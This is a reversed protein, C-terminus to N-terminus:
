GLGVMGQEGAGVLYRGAALALYVGDPTALRRVLTGDRRDLVTVTAAGDEADASEVLLIHAGDTLLEASSGDAVGPATWRSAGTRADLAVVREGASLYVTGELILVTERWGSSAGVDAAWLREGTRGDWGYAKDGISVELGPVSGDDVARELLQGRVELPPRGPLFVRQLRGVGDPDPRDLYFRGQSTMGWSDTETDEEVREGSASVLVAGGTLNLVVALDGIGTIFTSGPDVVGRVPDAHRYRWLEEGTLPDTAVVVLHRDDGITAAAVLGPLVAISVTPIIPHDALVRGDALDLVVVRSGTPMQTGDGGNESSSLDGEIVLCVVREPEVGPDATCMAGGPTPPDADPGTLPTSWAREGTRLDLADYSTAGGASGVAGHLRDNAVPGDVAPATMGDALRWRVELREGLPAIAGPLAAIRADAARSRADAVQQVGLAIGVAAVPVAWLWWRRGRRAAPQPAPSETPEDSEVLDVPTLPGRRAM